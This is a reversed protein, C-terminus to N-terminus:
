GLLYDYSCVSKVVERPISKIFDMVGRAMEEVTKFLKHNLFKKRLYNWFNEKPNLRPSYAPLWLPQIRPHTDLFSKVAKSHHTPHNDLVIYITGEISALLMLLFEIFVGSNFKENTLTYIEGTDPNVGGVVYTRKHSCDTDMVPKKERTWVYGQHPHLTSSMEDQFVLTGDREEHLSKFDALFAQQKEEQAPTYRYNVKRWAFGNHELLQRIREETVLVKHKGWLWLRLEHCDWTSCHLGEQQPTNEDALRCLEKEMAKTIRPPKGSRQADHVDQHEDWKRVWERVADESVFFLRAVEAKAYGSKVLLIAHYRRSEKGSRAEKFLRLLVEVEKGM